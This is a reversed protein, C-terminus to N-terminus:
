MQIPMIPVDEVDNEMCLLYRFGTRTANM